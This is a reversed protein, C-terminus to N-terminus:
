FIFGMWKHGLSGPNNPSVTSIWTMSLQVNHIHQKYAEWLTRSIKLGYFVHLLQQSSKYLALYIILLCRYSSCWQLYYSKLYFRIWSCYLNKKKLTFNNAVHIHLKKWCVSFLVNQSSKKKINSDLLIWKTNSSHEQITRHFFLPNKYIM